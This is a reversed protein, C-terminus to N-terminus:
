VLKVWIATHRLLSREWLCPWGCVRRVFPEWEATRAEYCGQDDSVELYRQVDDLVILGGHAMKPLVALACERRMRGDILCLDLSQDEFQQVAQVYGCDTPNGNELRRLICHADANPPLRRNVWHHWMPDHEVSVLRGVRRALWPTSRGSGWEFGTEAGNLVRDLTEVAGPALNPRFKSTLSYQWQRVMGLMRHPSLARCVSGAVTAPAPKDNPHMVSIHFDM